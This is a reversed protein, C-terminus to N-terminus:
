LFSFPFKSAYLHSVSIIICFIVITLCCLCSLLVFNTKFFPSSSSLFLGQTFPFIGSWCLLLLPTITQLIKYHTLLSNWVRLLLFGISSGMAQMVDVVSSIVAMLSEIDAQLLLSSFICWNHWISKFSSFLSKSPLMKLLIYLELLIYLLFIVYCNRLIYLDLWYLFFFLIAVEKVGVLFFIKFVDKKKMGLLIEVVVYLRLAAYVEFWLTWIEM